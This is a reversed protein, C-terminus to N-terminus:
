YQLAGYSCDALDAAYQRALQEPNNWGFIETLRRGGQSEVPPNHVIVLVRPRLQTGAFPQAPQPRPPDGLLQRGARLLRDFM